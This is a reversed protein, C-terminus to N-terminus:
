FLAYFSPIYLFLSHTYLPNNLAYLSSICSLLTAIQLLPSIFFHPFPNLDLHATKYSFCCHTHSLSFITALLHPTSSLTSILVQYLGLLLFLLFLFLLYPLYLLFTVYCCFFYFITHIITYM